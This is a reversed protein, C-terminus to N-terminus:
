RINFAQLWHKAILAHGAPTPHLGDETWYFPDNKLKMADNFIKNLPIYFANFEHALKKVVAIKPDLDEHWDIKDVTTHLLFPSMLIIKTNPLENRVRNLIYRYRNEFTFISTADEFDYKRKTENIGILISLITPELNICDRKWRNKLNIVRNGWIGKNLFTINYDPFKEKLVVSILEPYGIGLDKKNFRNRGGDTISDGQFLITENQNLLLSM